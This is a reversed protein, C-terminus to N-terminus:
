LSQQFLSWLNYVIGYSIDENHLVENNGVHLVFMRDANHVCQEVIVWTKVREQVIKLHVFEYDLWNWRTMVMIVKEKGSCTNWNSKRICSTRQICCGDINFSFFQESIWSCLKIMCMVLYNKIGKIWAFLKKGEKEMRVMIMIRKEEVTLCFVFMMLRTACFNCPLVIIHKWGVEMLWATELVQIWYQLKM